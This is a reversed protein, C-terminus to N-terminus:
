HPTRRLHRECQWLSGLPLVSFPRRALAEHAGRYPCRRALGMGEPPNSGEKVVMKSIKECRVKTEVGGTIVGQEPHSRTKLAQM